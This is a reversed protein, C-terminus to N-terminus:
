CRMDCLSPDVTTEERLLRLIDLIPQAFATFLVAEDTVEEDRRSLADAVRNTAGSKYEMTFKYGM